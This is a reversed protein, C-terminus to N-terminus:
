KGETEDIQESSDSVPSADETQKTDDSIYGNEKLYRLAEALRTM